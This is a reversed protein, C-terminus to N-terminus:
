GNGVVILKAFRLLLNKQGIAHFFVTAKKNPGEGEVSIVKGLGFSVHEVEMGAQINGDM